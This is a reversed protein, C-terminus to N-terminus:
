PCAASRGATAVPLEEDGTVCIVWTLESPPHLCSVRCFVVSGNTRLYNGEALSVGHSVLNHDTAFETRSESRCKAIHCRVRASPETVDRAFNDILRLEM